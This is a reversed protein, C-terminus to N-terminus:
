SLGYPTSLVGAFAGSGATAPKALAKVSHGVAGPGWGGAGTGIWWLVAAAFTCFIVPVNM